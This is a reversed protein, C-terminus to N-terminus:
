KGKRNPSKNGKEIQVKKENKKLEKLEEKIGKFVVKKWNRSSSNKGKDIKNGGALKGKRVQHRM